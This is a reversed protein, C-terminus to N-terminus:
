NQGAVQRKRGDRYTREFERLDRDRVFLRNLAISNVVNDAPKLRGDKIAQWLRRYTVGIELAAESLPWVREDDPPRCKEAPVQKKQM